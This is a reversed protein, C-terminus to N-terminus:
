GAREIYIRGAFRENNNLTIRLRVNSEKTPMLLIGTNVTDYIDWIIDDTNFNHIFDIFFQGSNIDQTWDNSSNFNFIADDSSISTEIGPKTDIGSYTTLESEIINGNKDIVVDRSSPATIANEVEGVDRWTAIGNIYGLFQGNTGAKNDQEYGIFKLPGQIQIEAAM